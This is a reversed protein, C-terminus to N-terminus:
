PTLRERQREILSAVVDPNAPAAAVAGPDCGELQVGTADIAAATTQSSAPASAAWSVLAALLAENSAQDATRFVGVFCTTGSRTLPRYSDAVVWQRMTTVTDEPLRTSWVLSWDDIGLAAPPALAVDGDRLFGGAALVPADDLATIMADPYPAGSPLTDPDIGAALLIPEGLLDIAAIEYAIPIPLLESGLPLGPSEATTAIATDVARAAIVPLPSVGTFGASGSTEPGPDQAEAADPDAGDPDDDASSGEPSVSDGAPAGAQRDFAQELAGRLDARADAEDVGARQLISDSEADYVAYELQALTADVNGTTVAGTALGLARWEPVRDIWTDGITMTRLREGFEAAALTELQVPHDFPGRQAEIENVIPTLQADWETDFLLSRGFVLAAAILGGIVVFALLSRGFLRGQRQQKNARLQAARLANIDSTSPANGVPAAVPPPAAPNSAPLSPMITPSAHPGATSLRSAISPLDASGQSTSRIAFDDFVSSRALPRPSADVPTAERIEPVANTDPRMHSELHTGPVRRPYDPKPEADPLTEPTLRPPVHNVAPPTSPERVVSEYTMPEIPRTVPSPSPTRSPSPPAVFPERAHDPGPETVPPVAEQSPPMADPPRLADASDPPPDGGALRALAGGLDFQFSSGGGAPRASTGRDTPAGGTDTVADWNLRPRGALGDLVRTDDADGLLDKLRPGEFPRKPGVGDGGEDAGPHDGDSMAVAM